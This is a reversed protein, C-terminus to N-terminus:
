EGVWLWAIRVELRNELFVIYELRGIRQHFGQPLDFIRVFLVVAFRLERTFLAVPLIVSNTTFTRPNPPQRTRLTPDTNM